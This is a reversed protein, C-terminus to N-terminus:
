AVGMEVQSGTGITVWGRRDRKSISYAPLPIPHEVRMLTALTASARTEWFTDDVPCIGTGFRERIEGISTVSLDFFWTEAVRCMGRIPGAAAKLLLLDGSSVQGHPACRQRGFRSEITKTGALILDLYPPVFIGLHIRALQVRSRGVVGKWFPHSKAHTTAHAVAGRCWPPETM